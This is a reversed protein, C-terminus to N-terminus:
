VFSINYNVMTLTESSFRFVAHAELYPIKDEVKTQDVAQKTKIAYQVGNIHRLKMIFQCFIM